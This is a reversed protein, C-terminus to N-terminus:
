SATLSQVRGSIEPWNELLGHGKQWWDAFPPRYSTLKIESYQGKFIADVPPVNYCFSESIIWRDHINNLLERDWLVRLECDINRVNLESKFREFDRRLRENMGSSSISTLIRVEKIRTGDAEDHLVELGRATFHKDFWHVFGSSTRLINWMNRLNSFPTEPSLFRTSPTTATSDTRPNFLVTVYNTKKSYKIIECQNLLMLFSGLQEESIRVRDIYEGFVLLNYVNTRKLGPRGWLLQCIAQTPGYGKVAASLIMAAAEDDNLVFKARFFEAGLELLKSNEAFGIDGLFGLVGQVPVVGHKKIWDDLEHM